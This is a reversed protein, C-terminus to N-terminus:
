SASVPLISEPSMAESAGPIVVQALGGCQNVAKNCLILEGALAGYPPFV